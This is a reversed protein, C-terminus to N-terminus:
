QRLIHNDHAVDRLGLARRRVFVGWANCPLADIQHDVVVEGLRRGVVDVSYTHLINSTSGYIQDCRNNRIQPRMASLHLEKNIKGGRAPRVPRAPRAPSATVKKVFLSLTLRRLITLTMRSDPQSTGSHISSIGFDFYAPSVVQLYQKNPKM